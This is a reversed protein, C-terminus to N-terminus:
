HWIFKSANKGECFLLDLISVEHVFNGWPQRYIPYDPYNMIEVTIGNKRFKEFNLYFKASPGTLYYTAQLQKLISILRDNKERELEFENSNCFITPLGLFNSIEKILYQNLESLYEWKTQLFTKKLFDYYDGFYKCKGYSGLLSRFHKEYWKRSNDIKVEEITVSQSGNNPVSLWKLGTPTKIRNRNRWDRKTYQVSDLFVFYDVKQIIHFYGKWPIYNSQLIAVKKM